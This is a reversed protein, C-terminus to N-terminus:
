DSEDVDVEGKEEPIEIKDRQDYEEFQTKVHEPIAINLQELAWIIYEPSTGLVTAMDFIDIKQKVVLAYLEKNWLLKGDFLFHSQDYAIITRCEPCRWIWHIDLKNILTGETQHKNLIIGEWDCKPCRWTYERPNDKVYRDGKALVDAFITAFNEMGPTTKIGLSEEISDMEKVIQQISTRVIKIKNDDYEIEEPIKTVLMKVTQPVTAVKKLIKGLRSTFNAREKTPMVELMENIIQVTTDLSAQIENAMKGFETGDTVGGLQLELVQATLRDLMFSLGFAWRQAKELDPKSLNRGGVAQWYRIFATVWEHTEMQIKDLRFRVRAVQMVKAVEEKGMKALMDHWEQSIGDASDLLEQWGQDDM